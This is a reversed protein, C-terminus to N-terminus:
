LGMEGFVLDDLDFVPGDHCVQKLGHVTKITCSYCAGHGCGMIAELSVQVPKGTIGLSPRNAAIQRYMAAPGCAYIRDANGATEPLLSTVLGRRGCSGDDTIRIVDIGIPLSDLPYLFRDTQAGLLLTVKLGRDVARQGLFYLPAIGIGGSVLLIERDTKEISFGNGLPGLVPVIDDPQRNALWATGKGDTLVNFLIAISENIVQHVSLPRPLTFDDCRVMVFQGPQVRWAIEPCNLWLLRVERYRRDVNYVDTFFPVNSIVKAEVQYL